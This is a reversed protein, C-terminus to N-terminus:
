VAVYGQLHDTLNRPYVEKIGALMERTLFMQTTMHASLLGPNPFFLRPECKLKLKSM